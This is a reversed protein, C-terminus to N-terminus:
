VNSRPSWCRTAPASSRRKTSTSGVPTTGVGPARSRRLRAPDSSRVVRSRRRPRVSSRVRRRRRTRVAVDSQRPLALCRGGRARSVRADLGRRGVGSREAVARQGPPLRSPLVRNRVGSGTRARDLDRAALRRPAADVAATGDPARSGVASLDGARCRGAGSGCPDRPAHRGTRRSVRRSRDPRAHRTRGSADDGADACGGLGRGRRRRRAHACGSGGRGVVGAVDPGLERERGRRSRTARRRPGLAAHGTRAANGRRRRCRSRADGRCIRQAASAGWGGARDPGFQDAVWDLTSQPPMRRLEIPIEM